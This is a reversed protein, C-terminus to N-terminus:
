LKSVNLISFKDTVISGSEVNCWDLDEMFSSFMYTSQWKTLSLTSDPSIVVKNPRTVLQNIHEILWEIARM